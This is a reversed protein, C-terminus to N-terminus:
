QMEENFSIYFKMSMLKLLIATGFFLSTNFPNETFKM